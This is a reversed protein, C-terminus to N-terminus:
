SPSCSSGPPACRPTPSPSGTPTRSTPPCTSASRSSGASASPTCRRASCPRGYGCPRGPAPSSRAAPFRAGRPTACCCRPWWGTSRSSSRSWCSRSPAATAPQGAAGDHLGLRRHRGHGHRLDGAGPGTPGTPVLRQGAPRGGRIRHRGPRPLVRRDPAAPLLRRVPRRVAGAPDDPLQRGPVDGAGGAPRDPRGGPHPGVSGVIVPVAVLLAQQFATLGLQERYAVGLPSILAWAWFNVLFGVTALGLMVGPRGASTGTTATSRGAAGSTTM